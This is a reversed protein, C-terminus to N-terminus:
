PKLRRVEALVKIWPPNDANYDYWKPPECIVVTFCETPEGAAICTNNSTASCSPGAINARM